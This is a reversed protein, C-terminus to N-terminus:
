RKLARLLLKCGTYGIEQFPYSVTTLPPSCSRALSSEEWSPIAVDHPINLGRESIIKVLLAAKEAYLSIIVQSSLRRKGFVTTIINPAQRQFGMAHPLGIESSPIINDPDFVAHKEM